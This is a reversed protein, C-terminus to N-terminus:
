SGYPIMESVWDHILNDSHEMSGICNMIYLCYLIAIILFPAFVLCSVTVATTFIKLFHLGKTVVFKTTSVRFKSSKHQTKKKKKEGGLYGM